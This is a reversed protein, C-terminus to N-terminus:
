AVPKRERSECKAREDEVGGFEDGDTQEGVNLFVEVEGFDGGSQKDRNIGPYDHQQRQREHNENRFHFEAFEHEPEDSEKGGELGHRKEGCTVGHEHGRTYAHRADVGNEPGNDARDGYADCRWAVTRNRQAHHYRSRADGHNEAHGYAADDTEVYAPAHREEADANKGEAGEEVYGGCKGFHGTSSTERWALEGSQEVVTGQHADEDERQEYRCGVVHAIGVNLREKFLRAAHAVFEYRGCQHNETSCSKQATQGERAVVVAVAEGEYGGGHCPQGDGHSQQKGGREVYHDANDYAGEHAEGGCGVVYGHLGVEDVDGSGFAGGYCHGDERADEVEAYAAAGEYAAVDANMGGDAVDSKGTGGDGEDCEEVPREVEAADDVCAEVSSVARVNSLVELVQHM